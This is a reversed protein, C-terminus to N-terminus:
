ALKGKKLQLQVSDIFAARSYLFGNVIYLIKQILDLIM